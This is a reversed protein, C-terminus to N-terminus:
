EINEIFVNNTLVNSLVTVILHLHLMFDQIYCYHEDDVIHPGKLDSWNYTYTSMGHDFHLETQTQLEPINHETFRTSSLLTVM